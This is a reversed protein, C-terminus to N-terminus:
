NFTAHDLDDDSIVKKKPYSNMNVYMNIRLEVREVGSSGYHCTNGRATVSYYKNMEIKKSEIPINLGPTCWKEGCIALTNGDQDVERVKICNAYPLTSHSVYHRVYVAHNDYGCNKLSWNKGDKFRKDLTSYANIKMYCSEKIGTPRFEGYVSRCFLFSIIFVMICTKTKNV